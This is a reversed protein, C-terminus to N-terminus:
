LDWSPNVTTRVWSKFWLLPATRPAIAPLDLDALRWLGISKDPNAGTDDSPDPLLQLPAPLNFPPRCLNLSRWSGVPADRNVTTTPYTTALLYTSGSQQFQRLARYGARLPLHVLCDRCLILDVPPLAARTIDAVQFQITDTAYRTQNHEIVAAVVDLGTYTIGDLPVTRMWNFDGCPADLISTVGLEQLLGPLATRITATCSLESGRGSVSEASQWLNVQRIHTFVKEM